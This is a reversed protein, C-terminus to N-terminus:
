LSQDNTLLQQRWYEAEIRKMQTASDATAVREEVVALKEKYLKLRELNIDNSIADSLLSKVQKAPLIFLTDNTSNKFNAGPEVLKGQGFVVSCVM